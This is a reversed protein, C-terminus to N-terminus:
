RVIPSPRRCATAIASWICSAPRRSGSPTNSSATSRGAAGADPQGAGDAWVDAVTGPQTGHPIESGCRRCRQELWDNLAELDPFNPMPQWLRHRADQVNKEVQGKEWGSAPNCFEAEFLYHSVMAAFRANVQGRRAAGSRTSRPACTTTSARAAARRGAGPLRPQPRRVADRPDAAPLGAAPLRPQLSLKFHAVQLKTREGGIIAWDESWDFQFAEGPAFSWRCSPAADAPRSSASATPRGTGRLPRWAATRATMASARGSRRAAAQDHAEAQAVQAAETRLWASLKDAYPISSARGTRCGSVRSSRERIAPVQPDHEAVPGDAPCIERISLQDRCHWRRIVSLLAM